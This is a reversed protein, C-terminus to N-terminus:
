LKTLYVKKQSVGASCTNLKYQSFQDSVRSISQKRCFSGLNKERLFIIEPRWLDESINTAPFQM